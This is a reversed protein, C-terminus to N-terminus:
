GTEMTGSFYGCVYIYDEYDPRLSTIYKERRRTPFFQSPRIAKMFMSGYRLYDLLTLHYQSKKYYFLVTTKSIREITQTGAVIIKRFEGELGCEINAYFESPGDGVPSPGKKNGVNGICVWLVSANAAPMRINFVVM